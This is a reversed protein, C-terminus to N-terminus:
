ARKKKLYIVIFFVLMVISWVFMLIKGPETEFRYLLDLLFLYPVNPGNSIYRLSNSILQVSFSVREIVTCFNLVVELFTCIGIVTKVVKSEKFISILSFIMLIAATAFAFLLFIGEKAFFTHPGELLRGRGISTFLWWFGEKVFFCGTIGGQMQQAFPLAYVLFPILSVITMIIKAVKGTGNTQVAPQSYNYNNVQRYANAGTYQNNGGVGSNGTYQNNSGMGLDGPQQAACGCNPCFKTEETIRAGCNQCFM